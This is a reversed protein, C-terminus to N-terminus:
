AYISYSDPLDYNILFKGAQLNVGYNAADTAIIVKTDHHNQFLWQSKTRTNCKNFFPCESCKLGKSDEGRKDLDVKWKCGKDTDGTYMVVGIQQKKRKGQPTFNLRKELERKMIQTMREFKSFIVVKQDNDIAIEEVMDLLRELKPPMAWKGKASEIKEEKKDPSLKADKQIAKVKTLYNKFVTVQNLQKTALSSDSMLLLEPTNCTELMYMLMANQENEIMKAEEEDKAKAIKQACALLADQTIKYLEKQHEDWDVYVMNESVDPLEDSVDETTRRLIYPAILRKLHGVNKVGKIMKERRGYKLAFPNLGVLLFRDEFMKRRTKLDYRKNGFIDPCVYDVLPFINQLDKEIPTGTMLLRIQPSQIQNIAQTTQADLNRMRHAEDIIIMDYENELIANLDIYDGQVTKTETKKGKKVEETGLREKQILLEYNVVTYFIDEDRVRKYQELRKEYAKKKKTSNGGDIVVHKEDTFKEIEQGWQTKLTAPCIILCRKIKGVDKLSEINKLYGSIALAEITKGLGMTDALIGGYINGKKGKRTVAWGVAVKQFDYPTIKMFPTDISKPIRELVEELTEEKTTLSKADEQMEDKSKWLAQTGLAKTLPKLSEKPVNFVKQEELWESGDIKAVQGFLAPNYPFDVILSHGNYIVQVYSNTKTLGIEMEM